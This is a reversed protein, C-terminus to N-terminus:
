MTRPRGACCSCFTSAAKRPPLEQVLYDQYGLVRSGPPLNEPAVIVSRHIKLRKRRKKAGPRKGTHPSPGTAGSGTPPEDDDPGTDLTSPKIKPRPPLKKLRAVEAELQDVREELRAITVQQQEIIALLLEVTPTMQEAPISPLIVGHNSM